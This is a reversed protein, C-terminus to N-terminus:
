VEDLLDEVVVAAHEVLGTELQPNAAAFRRFASIVRNILDPDPAEVKSGDDHEAVASALEANAKVLGGVRGASPYADTLLKVGASLNRATGVVPDTSPVPLGARLADLQQQFAAELAAIQAANDAQVQRLQEAFDPASVAHAGAAAAAEADGTAGAAQAAAMYEAPTQAQAVAALQEPTPQTM